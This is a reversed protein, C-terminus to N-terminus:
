IAGESLFNHKHSFVFCVVNHQGSLPRAPASTLLEFREASPRNRACTIIKVMFPSRSGFRDRWRIILSPEESHSSAYVRALSRLMMPKPRPCRNSAKPDCSSDSSLLRSGQLSYRFDFIDITLEQQLTEFRYFSSPFTRATGLSLGDASGCNRSFPDLM